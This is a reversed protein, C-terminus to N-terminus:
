PLTPLRDRPPRMSVRKLKRHGLWTAVAVLVLAAPFFAYQAVPPFQAVPDEAKSDVFPPAAGAARARGIRERVTPLTRSEYTAHALWAECRPGALSPRRDEPDDLPLMGTSVTADSIWLQCDETGLDACVREALEDCPNKCGSACALLALLPLFRRM